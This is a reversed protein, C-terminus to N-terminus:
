PKKPLEDALEQAKSKALKVTPENMRSELLDRKDIAETDGNDAAISFWAYAQLYDPKDMGEGNLLMLALDYQARVFGQRAAREYWKLAEADNTATGQGNDYMTGALYQAQVNGAEGAAIFEKLAAPYNASKYASVGAAFDASASHCFGLMSLAMACCLPFIGTQSISRNYM